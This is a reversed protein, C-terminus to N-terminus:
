TSAIDYIAYKFETIVEGFKINAVRNHSAILTRWFNNTQSGFIFVFDESKVLYSTKTINGFFKLFSLHFFTECLKFNEVRYKPATLTRESNAFM